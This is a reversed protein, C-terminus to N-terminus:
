DGNPSCEQHWGFFEQLPQGSAMLVRVLPFRAAPCKVYMCTAARQGEELNQAGLGNRRFGPQLLINTDPAHRRPRCRVWLVAPLYSHTRKNM